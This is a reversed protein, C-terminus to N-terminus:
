VMAHYFQQVEYPLLSPLYSSSWPLFHFHQYVWAVPSYSRRPPLWVPFPTSPQKKLSISDLDHSGGIGSLFILKTLPQHPENRLEENVWGWPSVCLSTLFPQHTCSWFMFMLTYPFWSFFSVSHPLKQRQDYCSKKNVETPVGTILLCVPFTYDM